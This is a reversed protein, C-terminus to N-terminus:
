YVYLDPPLAWASLDDRHRRQIDFWLGATIMGIVLVGFM